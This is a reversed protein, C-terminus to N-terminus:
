GSGSGNTAYLQLQASLITADAPLGSVTFRLFGQRSAGSGDVVKIESNTAYSSTPKAQDVYTDASPALTLQTQGAPPPTATATPTAPLNTGSFCSASGTDSFSQGAIPVFQWDYSTAHLTLKLVGFTSSNRVESNPRVTVFGRQDAGGTGVVFERIGNPDPEGYPNQPAFREYDHDHGNIVIDAGREHLVKWVEQMDLLNGHEGSSFVPRHWYGLSCAAPHAALDDKLWQIQAAMASGGIESNLSVIHWSGVDYSYYGLSTTGANAGYYGFYGSAGSTLYEHNGPAPRTRPKHRGWSPAYCSNYDSAAGNPYANDGATFVTGAIGDLLDATAEDGSSTCDAIDGAGVLVPDAASAPQVWMAYVGTLGLCLLLSLMRWRVNSM